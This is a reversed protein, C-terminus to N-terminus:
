RKKLLSPLLPSYILFDPVLCFLRSIPASPQHGMGRLCGSCCQRLGQLAAAATAGACSRVTGGDRCLGHREERPGTPHLSPTAMENFVFVLSHSYSCSGKGELRTLGNQHRNRQSAAPAAWPEWACRQCGPPDPLRAPALDGRSRGNPLSHLKSDPM